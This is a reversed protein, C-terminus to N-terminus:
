RAAQGPRRIFGVTAGRDRVTNGRDFVGHASKTRTIERAITTGKVQFAAGCRCALVHFDRAQSKGWAQNECKMGRTDRVAFADLEASERSM